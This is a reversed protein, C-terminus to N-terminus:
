QVVLGERFVLASHRLKRVQQDYAISGTRGSPFLMVM